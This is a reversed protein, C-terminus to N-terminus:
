LRRGGGPRGGPQAIRRGGAASRSRAVSRLRGATRRTQAIPLPGAKQLDARGRGRSRPGGHQDRVDPRVTGGASRGTADVSGRHRARWPGRPRAAAPTRTPGSSSFRALSRYGAARTWRVRPSPETGTPSPGPPRGRIPRTPSSSPSAPAAALTGSSGCTSGDVVDDGHLTIQWRLTRSTPEIVVSCQNDGTNPDSTRHYARALDAGQYTLDATRDPGVRADLDLDPNTGTRHDPRVRSVLHGRHQNDPGAPRDRSHHPAARRPTPQVLAHTNWLYNGCSAAILRGPQASVFQDLAREVLSCGKHSGAHRGLSLNVALPLREARQAIFDLGELLQVSSGLPVPLPDTSGLNVFVGYAEPAYGAPGGGRGNGAAISFTVTGHAGSNGSDFAAPHYGLRRTPDATRLAADIVATSSGGM